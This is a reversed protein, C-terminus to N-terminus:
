LLAAQQDEGLDDAPCPINFGVDEDAIVVGLPGIDLAVPHIFILTDLIKMEVDGGVLRNNEGRIQRIRLDTHGVTRGEGCVAGPRQNAPGLVIFVGMGPLEIM